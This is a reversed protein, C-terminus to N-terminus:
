SIHQKKETTELEQEQGIDDCQRVFLIFRSVLRSTDPVLEAAVPIRCKFGSCIVLLRTHCRIVLISYGVCAITHM